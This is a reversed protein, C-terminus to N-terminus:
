IPVHSARKGEIPEKVNDVIAKMLEFIRWQFPLFVCNSEVLALSIRAGSVEDAQLAPVNRLRRRMVELHPDATASRSKWPLLPSTYGDAVIQKTLSNCGRVLVLFLNLSDGMYSSAFTLLYCTALLASLRTEHDHSARHAGNAKVLEMSNLGQMALSRHRDVSEKLALDTRAHLHAAGLALIGHM